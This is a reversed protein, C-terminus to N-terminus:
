DLRAPGHGVQRHPLGIVPGVIVTCRRAAAGCHEHRAIVVARVDPEPVSKARAPPLRPLLAPPPAGWGRPHRTRSASLGPRGGGALHSRVPGLVLRRPPHNLLDGALECNHMPQGVSWLDAASREAVPALIREAAAPIAPVDAHLARLDLGADD